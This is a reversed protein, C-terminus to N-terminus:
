FHRCLVSAIAELLPPSSEFSRGDSERRPIPQVFRRLDQFCRVPQELDKEHEARKRESYTWDMLQVSKRTVPPTRGKSFYTVTDDSGQLEGRDQTTYM